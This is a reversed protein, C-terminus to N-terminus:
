AAAPLESLGDGSLAYAVGGDLQGAALGAFAEGAIEPTVPAGLMQRFQEVSVGRRAAHGRAHSRENHLYLGTSQPLDM